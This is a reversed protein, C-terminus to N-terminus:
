HTSIYISGWDNPPTLGEPNVFASQIDGQVYPKLVISTTSQFVPLWAVDNVLQQEAANYAADRAAGAPMADAAILQQQVQQQAAADSTHNQGYNMGNQGCGNCFQLTTWDQADPYDAIWGIEWM